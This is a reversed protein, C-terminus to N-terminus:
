FNAKSNKFVNKVVFVQGIHEPNIINQFYSKEEKIEHHLYAIDEQSNFESINLTSDIEFEIPRKSLNSIISITDSDYYRVEKKPAIFVILEGDKKHNHKCAFYLAVLPNTTVDLLRTPIGYHQM